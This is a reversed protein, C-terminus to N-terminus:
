DKVKNENLVIGDDGANNDAVASCDDIAAREDGLNNDDAVINSAGTKKDAEADCEFEM